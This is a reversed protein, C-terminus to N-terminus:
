SKPRPGRRGGLQEIRHIYDLWGDSDVLWRSPLRVCKVKGQRLLRQVHFRTYNNERMVQQVTLWM